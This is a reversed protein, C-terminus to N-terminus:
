REALRIHACNYSIRRRRRWEGRQEQGEEQAGLCKRGRTADALGKKSSSTNINPPPHLTPAPLLCSLTNVGERLARWAEVPGCSLTEVTVAARDGRGLRPSQLDKLGPAPFQKRSM